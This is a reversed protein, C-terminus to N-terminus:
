QEWRWRHPSRRAFEQALEALNIGYKREFTDIGKHSETHHAKCLSVTWKDHSKLREGAKENDPTGPPYGKSVHACEIPGDQCRPVSCQHGRVWKRHQQYDRTNPRTGM